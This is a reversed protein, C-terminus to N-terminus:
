HCFKFVGRDFVEIPIGVFVAFGGAGFRALFEGTGIVFREVGDLVLIYDFTGDDGQVLAFCHNVDAVLAVADDGHAFEAVVGVDFDAVSYLYEDFVLFVLLTLEDEGVLFSTCCASPFADAGCKGVVFDDFAKDFAAGFAAHNDVYEADFGEEGSRLDVNLGDAVVIHVHALGHFEFHGFDVFFVFVDNYGVLGEDFGFEFSLLFFDDGLELFALYEFAGDLVDDAVACEDVQAADVAKDVDGVEGPSANCVGGFDYLEVLFEVDNNEVKVVLLLADGETELLELGMRPIGEVGIEFNAILDFAFNDNHGVVACKYFDGGTDFAEDVDAFHGPALVQAGSLVEHFDTVFDFCDDESEVAFVALHGEADLLELVVRPLVDLGFVGM